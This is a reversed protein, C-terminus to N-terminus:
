FLPRAADEEAGAAGAGAAPVPTAALPFSGQQEHLSCPRCIDEM